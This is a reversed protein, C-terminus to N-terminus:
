LVQDILAGGQSEFDWILRVMNDILAGPMVGEASSRFKEELEQDSLPNMEEGKPSEVRREHREGNKLHVTVVGSRVSPYLRECLEDERTEIKLMLDQLVQRGLSEPRFSQITVNADLLALAVACPASMQAELLTHVHRQDHGHVGLGYLGIDVHAIAGADIATDKVLSRAADIAAHYHRCCPYLKFYLRSILFEQGLGKLLFEPRIEGRAFANFFGFKGELARAPGSIGRAALQACFVGDRAAKGAHLRKADSGDHLFELVGGSFSAALGLAHRLREADLGMVAAAAAAAGFVGAIATNHFGHVATTPHATAAIRLTVDYGLVVASMFRAPSVSHKRAAAFAASFIVAGPHCSGQTYGDDLDLAHARVGNVFAAEPGKLRAISAVVPLEDHPGQGYEVVCDLAAQVVPESTGALICALYDLLARKFDHATAPPLPATSTSSGYVALQQTCDDLSTMMGPATVSNDMPALPM